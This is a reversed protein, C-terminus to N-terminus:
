VEQLFCANLIGIGRKFDRNGPDGIDEACQMELLRQVIEARLDPDHRNLTHHGLLVADVQELLRERIRILLNAGHGPSM